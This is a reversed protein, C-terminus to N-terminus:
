LIAHFEVELLRERTHADFVKLPIDGYFHWVGQDATSPAYYFYKKTLVGTTTYHCVGLPHFLVSFLVHTDKNLQADWMAARQVAAEPTERLGIYDARNMSAM